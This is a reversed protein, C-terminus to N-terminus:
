ALLATLTGLKMALTMDGDIQLKGTFFLETPQVRGELLDVYDSAALTLTCDAAGDTEEIRPTDKFTALWTGGGDGTLVFKYSAGIESALSPQDKLRGAARDM